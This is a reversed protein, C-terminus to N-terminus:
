LKLIPLPANLLVNDICPCSLMIKQVKTELNYYYVRGDECKVETWKTNQIRESAVPKPTADPTTVDGVCELPREWQSVGTM